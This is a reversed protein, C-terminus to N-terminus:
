NYRFFFFFFGLVQLFWFWFFFGSFFVFFLPGSEAKACTGRRSPFAVLFARIPVELIFLAASSFTYCLDSPAQTRSLMIFSVDSPKAPFSDEQLAPSLSTPKIGPNPLNGPPLFPLRSWDEQRSCGM